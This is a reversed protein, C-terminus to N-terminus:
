LPALRMLIRIQPSNRNKLVVELRGDHDLDALAFARSDDPFDLGVLGSVDSFSGDGDNLYFVNREYGAWTADSRILENIANWGREYTPSPNSTSPSMGVVQRWFFSSVDRTDPGSIYGNAIYLDPYGDHDVDWSDSSWSWRGMDVGAANGINQFKGNNLNRYLSNGGAHRKYHGRIAESEQEHFVKQGSVRVGAASWMNAVYIDQNGDGDFDAWCADGWACAFSYRDNDINLGAEATRDIFSANGANHLLFNPPGNRADFYPV